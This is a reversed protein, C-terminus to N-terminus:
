RVLRSVWFIILAFVLFGTWYRLKREWRVAL